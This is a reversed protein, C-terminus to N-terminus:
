PQPGLDVSIELAGGASGTTEFPGAVKEVLEKIALNDHHILGTFRVIGSERARIILESLLATGLGIRMWQDGVGIAFEATEPHDLDRVYRATGLSQGTEADIAILAEHRDHDVATLYDLESGTLRPHPALFRLFISDETATEFGERLRDRDGANIPRILATTGDRLEVLQDEATV